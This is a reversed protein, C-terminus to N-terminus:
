KILPLTETNDPVMVLSSPGKKNSGKKIPTLWVLINKGKGRMEWLLKYKTNIYKISGRLKGYELITIDYGLINQKEPQERIGEGLCFMGLLIDWIRSKIQEYQGQGHHGRNYGGEEM